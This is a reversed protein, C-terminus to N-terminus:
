NATMTFVNLLCQFIWLFSLKYIFRTSLNLRRFASSAVACFDIVYDLDPDPGSTATALRDLLRDCTEESPSKKFSIGQGKLFDRRMNTNAQRLCRVLDASRIRPAVTVAISTASRARELENRSPDLLALFDPPESRDAENTM